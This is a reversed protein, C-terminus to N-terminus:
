NLFKWIASSTWLLCDFAPRKTSNSNKRFYFLLTLPNLDPQVVRSHRFLNKCSRPFIMTIRLLSRKCRTKVEAPDITECVVPFNRKLILKACNFIATKSSCKFHDGTQKAEPNELYKLLSVLDKNRWEENRKRLACTSWETWDITKGVRM